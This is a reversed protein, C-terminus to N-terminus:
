IKFISLYTAGTETGFDTHSSGAAAAYGDGKGLRQGQNQVVGEVVYLFEPHEHTHPDGRYGPSAEVLAVFYGDASGLIKARANDGSGWPTWAVDDAQAINWGDLSIEADM